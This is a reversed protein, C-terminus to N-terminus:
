LYKLTIQKINQNSIKHLKTVTNYCRVSTLIKSKTKSLLLMGILIYKLQKIIDFTLVYHKIEFVVRFTFPM